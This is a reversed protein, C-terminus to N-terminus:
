KKYFTPPPAVDGAYDVGRCRCIHHTNVRIALQIEGQVFVARLNLRPCLFSILHLSHDSLMVRYNVSFCLVSELRFVSM